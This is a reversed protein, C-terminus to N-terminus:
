LGLMKHCTKCPLPPEPLTMGEPLRADFLSAYIERWRREREEFCHRFERYGERDWILDLPERFINGFSVQEMRYEENCFIRSFPSTVPPHLYVCPAVDGRASIYLNSLPNESCVAVSGAELRPLILNIKLKRSIRRAEDLLRRYPTEGACSFVKEENQRSNSIQIINIAVVERVGLRHALEVMAPLEDINSKLMLYVIHIRPRGKDGGLRKAATVAEVLRDFESNVRIRNHTAPSAGSFSFGLFDLGGAVLPRAREEDLGMGSTVFGAEAGRGKVLQVAQALDPYLLSEGWGELVVNEVETLYPLIAAFGESTMDRREWECDDKVCM